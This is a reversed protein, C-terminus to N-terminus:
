AIDGLKIYIHNRWMYLSPNSYHRDLTNDEHYFNWLTTEM